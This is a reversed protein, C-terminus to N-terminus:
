HPPTSSAGGASSSSDNSRVMSDPDDAKKPEPSDTSGVLVQNEDPRKSAFAGGPGAGSHTAGQSGFGGYGQGGRYAGMRVGNGFSTSSVMCHPRKTVAVHPAPAGFAWSGGHNCPNPKGSAHSSQAEASLTGLSAALALMSAFFRM